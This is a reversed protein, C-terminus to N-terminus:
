KRSMYFKNKNQSKEFTSACLYINLKKSLNKAWLFTQNNEQSEEQSEANEAIKELYDELNYKSFNCTEPLCVFIINNNKKNNKRTSSVAEQILSELKNLNNNKNDTPSFQIAILELM